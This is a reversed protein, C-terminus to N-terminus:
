GYLRGDEITKIVHYEQQSLCSTGEDILTYNATVRGCYICPVKFTATFNYCQGSDYDIQRCLGITDDVRFTNYGSLNFAHDTLEDQVYSDDTDFSIKVAYVACVMDGRESIYYNGSIGVIKDGNSKNEQTCGVMLLLCILLIIPKM